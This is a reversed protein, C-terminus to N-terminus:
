LNKKKSKNKKKHFNKKKGHRTYTPSKKVEYKHSLPPPPPPPALRATM